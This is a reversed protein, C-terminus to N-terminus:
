AGRDARRQRWFWIGFALLMVFGGPAATSDGVPQVGPAPDYHFCLLSLPLSDAATSAVENGSLLALLATRSYRVGYLYGRIVGDPAAVLIGAPHAYQDITPDYQYSFGAVRALAAASRGDSDTLLHVHSSEAGGRTIEEHRMRAADPRDRPDISVAVIEAPTGAAVEGLGQLVLPCLGKCSYYSFALM